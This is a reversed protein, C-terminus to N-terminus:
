EQRCQRMPVPAWALSVEHRRPPYRCSVIAANGSSADSATARISAISSSASRSM